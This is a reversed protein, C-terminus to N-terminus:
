TGNVRFIRGGPMDTLYIRGDSGEGFSVISYHLGTSTPAPLAAGAAHGADIVWVSGTCFDGFIYKGLLDAGNRRSVYGGTISCGESHSYSAIPLTKGSTDCGTAPRYCSTGEMVQWGYNVNRGTTSRNVEEWTKEGVDACWLYGTGRDFSCRWPNRLGRSWIENRGVKGVYPNDSPVSYRRPGSGDPDLPNIRLIKGLLKKKNQARNKPDGGGDGLAIYLLNGKFGIWGGNHNAAPQEILMVRRKSSRVAVDADSKSRRFEAIVTAGDSKRTYNVYFRRNTAYSPHFAMGLLGREGTCCGVSSRIDLFLTKTTGNLVWIRGPREVVFLRSDGAHTVYIPRDFGGAVETLSVSAAAPSVFTSTLLMGLSIALALRRLPQNRGSLM